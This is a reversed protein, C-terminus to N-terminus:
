MGINTGFTQWTNENLNYKKMVAPCMITHERVLLNHIALFVVIHHFMTFHIFLVGDLSLEFKALEIDSKHCLTYEITPHINVRTTM